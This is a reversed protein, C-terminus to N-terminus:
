AESEPAPSLVEAQHMAGQVFIHTVTGLGQSSTIVATGRSM